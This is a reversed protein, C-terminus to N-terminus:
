PPSPRRQTGTSDKCHTSSSLVWLATGVIYRQGQLATDASDDGYSTRTTSAPRCHRGRPTPHLFGNLHAQLARCTPSPLAAACIWCLQGHPQSPPTTGQLSTLSISCHQEHHVTLNLLLPPKVCQICRRGQLLPLLVSGPVSAPAAPHPALCSLPHQERSSSIRQVNQM